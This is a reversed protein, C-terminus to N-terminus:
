RYRAHATTPQTYLPHNTRKLLGHVHHYWGLAYRTWPTLAWTWSSPSPLSRCVCLPQLVPNHVCCTCQLTGDRDKDGAAGRHHRPRRGARSGQGVHVMTLDLVPQPGCIYSVVSLAILSLGRLNRSVTIPRTAQLAMRTLAQQHNRRVSNSSQRRQCKSYHAFSRPAAYPSHGVQPRVARFARSGAVASKASLIFAM